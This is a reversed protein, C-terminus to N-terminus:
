AVVMQAQFYLTQLTVAACCVQQPRSSPPAPADRQGSETAAVMPVDLVSCGNGAGGEAQESTTSLSTQGLNGVAKEEPGMDREGPRNAGASPTPSGTCAGACEEPPESAEHSGEDGLMM